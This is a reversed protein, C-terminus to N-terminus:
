PSLRTDEGLLRYLKTRSFGLHRAARAKNGGTRKLEERVVEELSSARPGAEASRVDPPLDRRLLTRDSDLRVALYRCISRLQRINGPWPYVELFERLEEAFDYLFPRNLETLADDVFHSAMPLIDARRASLEPVRITLCDIRFRLEELFRGRGVLEELDASSAFVFRVDVPRFQVEGVRQVGGAELLTLLAQQVQLTSHNLEDLFLTGRHAAEVAGARDRTAGTYSGRSSGSLQAHRLDEPVSTLPFEVFRGAARNSHAHIERALMSKGSGTPGLLLVPYPTAAFVCVDEWLMRAAHSAGLFFAPTRARLEPRTHPRPDSGRIDEECVERVSQNRSHRSASDNALM